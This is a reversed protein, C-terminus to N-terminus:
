DRAPRWACRRHNRGHRRGPSGVHEARVALRGVVVRTLVPQPQAVLAGRQGFGQAAHAEGQLHLACTKVRLGHARMAKVYPARVTWALLMVPQRHHQQGATRVGRM